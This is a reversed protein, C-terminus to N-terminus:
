CWNKLPTNGISSVGRRYGKEMVTLGGIFDNIIKYSSRGTKETSKFQPLKKFPSISPYM